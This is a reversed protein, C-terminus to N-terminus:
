KRGHKKSSHGNFLRRRTEQRKAPVGCGDITLTYKVSFTLFRRGVTVCCLHDELEFYHDNQLNSFPTKDVVVKGDIKIIQRTSWYSHKLVIEYQKNNTNVHWLRAAM